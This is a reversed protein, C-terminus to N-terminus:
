INIVRDLVLIRDIIGVCRGKEDEIYVKPHRKVALQFVVELLTADLPMAAYDKTMVDVATSRSEEEFYKEFPDFERIFSVSRLQSFFDPLGFQFLLDSTIEGLIKGDEDIVPAAEVHRDLMNRAVKKLIHDPKIRLRLPRMIDKALVTIDTSLKSDVLARYAAAPSEAQLLQDRHKEDRMFQALSSMVKLFMSPDDESGIMFCVTDVPRGDPTKIDLPPDLTAIAISSGSCDPIRAHPYALGNGLVTAGQNERKEVLALIMEANLEPNTECFAADLIREVLKECAEHISEVKINLLIHREDFLHTLHM